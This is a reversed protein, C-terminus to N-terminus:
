IADSLLVFDLFYQVCVDEHVVASVQLVHVLALHIKTHIRGNPLRVTAIDVSAGIDVFDGVSLAMPNTAVASGDDLIRGVELKDSLRWDASVRQYWNNPDDGLIPSTESM